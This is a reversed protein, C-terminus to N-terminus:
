RLEISRRATSLRRRIIPALNEALYGYGWWPVSLAFIVSIDRVYIMYGSQYLPALRHILDYTPWDVSYLIARCFEMYPPFEGGNRWLYSVFASILLFHTYFLFRGWRSKWFGLVDFYVANGM